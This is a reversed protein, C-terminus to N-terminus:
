PLRYQPGIRLDAEFQGAQAIDEFEAYLEGFALVNCRANLRQRASRVRSRLALVDFVDSYLVINFGEAWGLNGEDSLVIRMATFDAITPCEVICWAAFCVPTVVKTSSANQHVWKTARNIHGIPLLYRIDIVSM